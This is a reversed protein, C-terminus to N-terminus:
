KENALSKVMLCFFLLWLIGAGIAAVFINFIATLAPFLGCSLLLCMLYLKPKKIKM